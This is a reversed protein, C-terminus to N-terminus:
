THRASVVFMYSQKGFTLALCDLVSLVHTEKDKGMQFVAHQENRELIQLKKASEIEQSAQDRRPFRKETEEKEKDAELQARLAMFQDVWRDHQIVNPTDLNAAEQLNDLLKSIYSKVRNLRHHPFFLKNGGKWLHKFQDLCSQAYSTALFTLERHAEM